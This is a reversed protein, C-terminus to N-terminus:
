LIESTAPFGGGTNGVANSIANADNTSNIRYASARRAEM